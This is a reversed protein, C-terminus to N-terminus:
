YPLLAQLLLSLWIPLPLCWNEWVKL